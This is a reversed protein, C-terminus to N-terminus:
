ERSKSARVLQVARSKSVGLLGAIEEYSAGADRLQAISRWRVELLKAVRIEVSRLHMQIYRLRDAPTLEDIHAFATDFRRSLETVLEADPAGSPDTVCTM